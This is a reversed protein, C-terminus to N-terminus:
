SFSEGRFAIRLGSVPRCIGECSSAADMRAFEDWLLVQEDATISEISENLQRFKTDSKRTLHVHLQCCILSSQGRKGQCVIRSRSYTRIPFSEPATTAIVKWSTSLSQKRRFLLSTLCSTLSLSVPSPLKAAPVHRFGATANEEPFNIARKMGGSGLVVLGQFNVGVLLSESFQFRM